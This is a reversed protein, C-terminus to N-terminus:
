DTSTAPPLALTLTTTIGDAETLLRQHSRVLAAAAGMVAVFEGARNFFRQRTTGLLEAGDLARGSAARAREIMADATATDTAEALIEDRLNTWAVQIRPLEALLAKVPAIGEARIRDLMDAVTGRALGNEWQTEARLQETVRLSHIREADADLQALSVALSTEKACLATLGGALTRPLFDTLFGDGITPHRVFLEGLADPEALASLAHHTETLRTWETRVDRKDMLWRTISIAGFVLSPVALSALTPYPSMMGVIAGTTYMGSVMLGLVGVGKVVSSNWKEEDSEADRMARREARVWDIARDHVALRAEIEAGTRCGLGVLEPRDQRLVELVKPEGHVFEALLGPQAALAATSAGVRAIERGMERAAVGTPQSRVLPTKM